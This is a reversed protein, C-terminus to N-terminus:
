GIFHINNELENPNRESSPFHEKLLEGCKHIANVFGQGPKKHKLGDIILGCIMDWHNQGLKKSIASDGRVVVMRELLSVYILVGTSGETKGIGYRYFCEMAKRNVEEETEKKPIFPLKLFPCYTALASGIAFGVIIIAIVPFIGISYTQADFAAYDVPVSFYVWAVSLAAVAFLLGFIDEARDYRGSNKAVVVVVEGSTGKEAEAIAEHVSKIDVADLIHKIKSRTKVM